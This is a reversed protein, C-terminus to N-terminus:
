MSFNFTIPKHEFFFIDINCKCNKVTEQIEADFTENIITGIWFCLSSAICHMFALKAVKKSRNIIVNSFKFLVFLQTLVYIFQLLCSCVILPNACEIEKTWSKSINLPLAYMELYPLEQFHYIQKTLLVFLHIMTGICFFGAGFRLFLSGSHRGSSFVYYQPLKKSNSAVLPISIILEGDEGEILKFQSSGENQYYEKMMRVYKQIDYMLWSLWSIGFICLLINFVESAHYPGSKSYPGFLDFLYTIIGIMVFALCYLVSGVTAIFDLFRDKRLAIKEEESMGLNSRKNTLFYVM